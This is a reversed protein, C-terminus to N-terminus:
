AEEKATTTRWGLGCCKKCKAQQCNQEWDVDCPETLMGVVRRILERCADPYTRHLLWLPEGNRENGPENVIWQKGDIQDPTVKLRGVAEARPDGSQRLFDALEGVHGRVIQKGSGDCFQCVGMYEILMGGRGCMKVEGIGGCNECPGDGPHDLLLAFTPMDFCLTHYDAEPGECHPCAVGHRREDEFLLVEATLRCLYPPTLHYLAPGRILKKSAHSWHCTKCSVTKGHIPCEGGILTTADGPVSEIRRVAECCPYPKGKCEECLEEGVVGQGHCTKCTGVSLHCNIADTGGCRRCTEGGAGGCTKCETEWLHRGGETLYDAFERWLEPDRPSELLASFHTPIPNNPHIM